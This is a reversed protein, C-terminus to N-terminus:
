RGPNGREPNLLMDYGVTAFYLVLGLTAGVKYLLRADSAWIPILSSGVLLFLAPWTVLTHFLESPNFIEEPTLSRTREAERLLFIGVALGIVGLLIYIGRATYWHGSPEYKRLALTAFLAYIVGLAISDGLWFSRWRLLYIKHEFRMRVLMVGGFGFLLTVLM